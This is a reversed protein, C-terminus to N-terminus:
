RGHKMIRDRMRVLSEKDQEDPYNLEEDILSLIKEKKQRESLKPNNLIDAIDILAVKFIVLKQTISLPQPM